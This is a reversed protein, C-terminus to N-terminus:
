EQGRARRLSDPRGVDIWDGADLLFGGVRRRRLRCREILEPMTSANQTPVLKLTDPSVVYIGANVMFRELPKERLELIQNGRMTAVGFPIEVQWPKLAVTLASKSEVHSELLKPVDFDVVLDGNMVIIPARKLHVPLLSLAGATGLPKREKLYTIKCGFRSGDGFHEVIVHSLYNVSLAINRVGAGVLHLVIRELIPRGAVPLMPKPLEYTLPRLRTGKGGAMIVAANPKEATGLLERLLHVAILRGKGDLAPVVTIGLSRMLDLVEVRRADPGVWRFRTHMVDAVGGHDLVRGSLIARRVDGDSLTGLVKRKPDVVFVLGVGGCDIAGLAERLTARPSLMLNSLLPRM